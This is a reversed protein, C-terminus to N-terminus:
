RLLRISVKGAEDCALIWRSDGCSLFAEGRGVCTVRLNEPDNRTIRLGRNDPVNDYGCTTRSEKPLFWPFEHSLILNYGSRARRALLAESDGLPSFAVESLRETVGPIPISKRGLAKELALMGLWGALYVILIWLIPKLLIKNMREGM